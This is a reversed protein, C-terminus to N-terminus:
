RRKAKKKGRAIKTLSRTYEDLTEPVATSYVYQGNRRCAILGADMLTKMHHSVTAPTVGQLSAIDGCNMKKRGAIAEFIMLRTQDALAKSVKEIDAHNM